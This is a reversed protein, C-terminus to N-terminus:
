CFLCRDLFRVVLVRGSLTVRIGGWLSVRMSASTLQGQMMWRRWGNGNRGDKIWLDMRDALPITITEGIPESVYRGVSPALMMFLQRKERRETVNPFREQLARKVLMDPSLNEFRLVESVPLTVRAQWMGKVGNGALALLLFALMGAVCLLAAMGYLRFRRERAYRKRLHVTAEIM